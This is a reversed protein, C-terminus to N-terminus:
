GDDASKLFKITGDKKTISYVEMTYIYWAKIDM